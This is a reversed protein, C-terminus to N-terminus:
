HVLSGRYAHPHVEGDDEVLAARLDGMEGDAQAGFAVMGSLLGEAETPLSAEPAHPTVKMREMAPLLSRILRDLATGLMMDEVGGKVSDGVLRQAKAPSLPKGQQALGM